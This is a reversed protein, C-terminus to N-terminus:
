RGLNAGGRDRLRAIAANVEAGVLVVMAVLSLWTILGLVVAFTGYVEGARDTIHRVIRPGLQHVVSFAIGAPIAGPWVDRWPPRVSTLFRYIAALVGINILVACLAVLLESIWPLGAFAIISSIAINGIQSTGVILIGVAARGRRAAVKARDDIAVEQTDDLAVHLSAFAKTSSWIAGLLGGVFVWASGNLASPDDRLQSGIVPLEGAAGNVIQRQLEENGYLVLGLLTTAALMLPFVSLVTFFALLSANRGTQHRRWGDLAEVVVDAVPSKRRLDSVRRNTMWSMLLSDSLMARVVHAPPPDSRM